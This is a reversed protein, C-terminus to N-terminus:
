HSVERRDRAPEAARFFSFDLLSIDDNGVRHFLLRLSTGDCGDASLRNGSVAAGWCRRGPLRKSDDLYDLFAAPIFPEVYSGAFVLVQQPQRRRDSWIVGARRQLVGSRRRM